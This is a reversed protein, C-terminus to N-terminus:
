SFNVRFMKSGTKHQQHEHAEKLRQYLPLFGYRLHYEREDVLRSKSSFHRPSRLNCEFEVQLCAELEAVLHELEVEELDVYDLAGFGSSASPSSTDTM